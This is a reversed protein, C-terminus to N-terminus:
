MNLINSCVNRIELPCNKSFIVKSKSHNVRQGSASNFRQLINNITTCNDPDERAIFTLDDAFFLHSIKSGGTTTSILSWTKNSVAEEISKSFREMCMILLYPYMPDGKRIGRSSHFSDTKGGNVLIAISSTSVCSMVLNALKSPIKFFELNEKIYSWDLRDFANELNIKLLM